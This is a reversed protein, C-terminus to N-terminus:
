MIVERPKSGDAPGVIGMEEMIDIIRAARSYGLKMRRQLMSTSAKKQERVIRIAEALVKDDENYESGAGEAIESEMDRNPELIEMDYMDELMRPDITRKIQNVVAEVEETEALVGQVRIPDTTGSPSYLM